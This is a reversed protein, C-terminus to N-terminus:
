LVSERGGERSDFLSWIGHSAPGIEFSCAVSEVFSKTHDEASSFPIERICSDQLDNM